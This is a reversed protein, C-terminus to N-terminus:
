PKEPVCFRNIWMTSMKGPFIRHGNLDEPVNRKCKSCANEERLESYVDVSIDKDECKDTEAPTIKRQELGHKTRAHKNLSKKNAFTKDCLKCEWLTGLKHHDVMHRALDNKNVFHMSCVNCIHEAGKEHLGIHRVLSFRTALEAHCLHCTYQSVNQNHTKSHSHLTNRDVFQIGCIECLFDKVPLHLKRHRALNDSRSLYKGCEPCELELWGDHPISQDRKWSNKSSSEMHCNDYEPNHGQCDSSENVASEPHRAIDSTKNKNDKMDTFVTGSVSALEIDFDGVAAGRTEIHGAATDNSLVMTQYHPPRTQTPMSLRNFAPGSSSGDFVNSLM